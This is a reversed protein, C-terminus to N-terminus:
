PPGSQFLLKGAKDKALLSGAGRVGVTVGRAALGLRLRALRPDRAAARTKVVVCDLPLSRGHRIDHRASNCQAPGPCASATVERRM